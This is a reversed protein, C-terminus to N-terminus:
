KKCALISPTCSFKLFHSLGVEKLFGNLNKRERSTYFIENLKTVDGDKVLMVNQGGLYSSMGCFNISNALVIFCNFKKLDHDLNKNEIQDFFKWNGDTCNEQVFTMFKQYDSILHLTSFENGKIEKSNMTLPDIEKTPTLDNFAQDIIELYQDYIKQEEQDSNLKQWQQDIYTYVFTRFKKWSPKEVIMFDKLIAFMGEQNLEDNYEKLLQFHLNEFKQYLSDLLEIMSKQDKNKRLLRELKTKYKTDKQNIRLSPLIKGGIGNVNGFEDGILDEKKLFGSCIFNFFQEQDKLIKKDIEYEYNKKINELFEHM